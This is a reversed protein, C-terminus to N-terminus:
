QTESGPHYATRLHDLLDPVVVFLAQEGVDLRENAIAAALHTKGSGPPGVLLLWGNPAAAFSKSAEYAARFRRRNHEEPHRGEVNLNEFTLRRLPGLNSLRALREREREALEGAKCQCPFAKGFDAHGLPVQRRVFGAGDCVPCVADANEAEDEVVLADALGLRQLVDALREM